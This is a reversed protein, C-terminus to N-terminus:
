CFGAKKLYNYAQIIERLRDESSRDGGNADPHHQKVLLKYKAKIEKEGASHPIDLTTFAKEEMRKLKRQRPEPKTEKHSERFLNFPDNVKGQWGAQRFRHHASTRQASSNASMSWTPRQGTANNKQYSHIDDDSLGNFYNYSKNYERVHDICFHFFEGEKDRGKPARHSGTRTCGEWECPQGEPEKKEEAKPKVRISDFYRSNLKM